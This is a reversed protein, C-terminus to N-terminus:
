RRQEQAPDAGHNRLEGVVERGCSGGGGGGGCRGGGVGVVCVVGFVRGEGCWEGVCVVRWVERGGVMVEGWRGGM